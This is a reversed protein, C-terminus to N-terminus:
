TPRWHTRRGCCSRGSARNRRIRLARFILEESSGSLLLQFGLQGVINRVTLPYPFTQFTGTTIVIILSVVSYVSFILAFRRVWLFGVARDGWDFGFRIGSRQAIITMIILFILAQAIHHVSIWAFAGDPDVARYDFQDAVFGALRPVGLLLATLGLVWAAQQFLRVM